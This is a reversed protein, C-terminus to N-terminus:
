LFNIKKSPSRHIEDPLTYAACAIGSDGTQLANVDMNPLAMFHQGEQAHRHQVLQHYNNSLLGNPPISGFVVDAFPAPPPPVCSFGNQQGTVYHLAPQHVGAQSQVFRMMEHDPRQKLTGFRTHRFERVSVMNQESGSYQFVLPGEAKNMESASVLNLCLNDRKMGGQKTERQQISPAFIPAAKTPSRAFSSAPLSHMGLCFAPFPSYRDDEDTPGAWITTFTSTPSMSYAVLGPNVKITTGEPIAKNLQVMNVSINQAAELVNEEFIGDKKLVLTRVGEGDQPNNPHWTAAFRVTLINGLEECFVGVKRRPVKGFCLRAIVNVAEKVETYM